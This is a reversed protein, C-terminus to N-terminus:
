KMNMCKTGMCLTKVFFYYQVCTRQITAERTSNDKALIHGFNIITTTTTGAQLYCKKEGKSEHSVISYMTLSEQLFVLPEYSFANVDTLAFIRKKKLM